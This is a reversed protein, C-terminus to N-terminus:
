RACAPWPVNRYHKVTLRSEDVLSEQDLQPPTGWKLPAEGSLGTSAGNPNQGHPHAKEPCIRGPEGPSFPPNEGPSVAPSGPFDRRVFFPWFLNGRSSLTGRVLPFLLPGWM